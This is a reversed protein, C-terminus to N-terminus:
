LRLLSKVTISNPSPKVYQVEDYVKANTGDDCTFLFIRPTRSSYKEQYKRQFYATNAPITYEKAQAIRSATKSKIFIFLAKRRFQYSPDGSLATPGSFLEDLDVDDGVAWNFDHQNYTLSTRKVVKEGFLNWQVAKNGNDAEVILHHYIDTLLESFKSKAGYPVVIKRLSKCGRFVDTDICTPVGKFTIEELGSMCFAAVGIHEISAPVTLQKLSACHSFAADGISILGDPLTVVMLNKCKRFCLGKVEEIGCAISYQSISKDIM